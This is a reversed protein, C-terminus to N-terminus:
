KIIFFISILLYIDIYLTEHDFIAIPFFTVGEFTGINWKDNKMWLPKNLDEIMLIFAYKRIM